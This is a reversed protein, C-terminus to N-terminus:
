GGRGCGVRGSSARRDPPRDRSPADDDPDPNPVAVSVRTDTEEDDEFLEPPIPRDANSRWRKGAEVARAGAFREGKDTLRWSGGQVEKHWHLFGLGGDDDVDIISDRLEAEDRPASSQFRENIETWPRPVAFFGLETPSFPRSM